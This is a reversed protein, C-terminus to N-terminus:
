KQGRRQQQRGQEVAGQGQERAVAAPGHAFPEDSVATLLQRCQGQRQHGQQQRHGGANTDAAHGLAKALGEDAPEILAQGGLQVHRRAIGRLRPLHEGPEFRLRIDIRQRVPMDVQAQLTRRHLDLAYDLVWAIRLM